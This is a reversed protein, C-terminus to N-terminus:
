KKKRKILVFFTIVTVFVGLPVGISLALLLPDAIIQDLFSRAQVVHTSELSDIRITLSGSQTDVISSSTLTVPFTLSQYPLVADIVKQSPHAQLESSTHIDVPVAYWAYGTNNTITIDYKSGMGLFTTLNPSVSVAVDLTPEAVTASRQITFNKQDVGQQNNFSPPIPKTSSEGQTALTIHNFDLHHFYETYGITDSWTPDVPQWNKTEHNFFEAWVHLPVNSVSLPRLVQSNSLAYGTVQRAAINNARALTIFLDSYEHALSNTPHEYAFAAGTRQPDSARRLYNYDLIQVVAKFAEHPTTYKKRLEQISPHNKEWYQQGKIHELTPGPSVVDARPHLFVDIKGEVLLEQQQQSDLPYTAIWNGDNDREIKEPRPALQSFGVRQYLTDPPLVVQIIGRNGTPNSLLYSMNFTYTQKKGFLATVGHHANDHYELTLTQDDETVNTPTPESIEVAGLYKPVQINIQYTSFQDAYTLSPINIEATQDSLIAIEPHTYQLTFTHQKEKGVVKEPFELGVTTKEETSTVTAPLVTDNYTVTVNQINGSHIEIAYRTVFATSTTNTITFDSRVTTEGAPSIIYTSSLDTAFQSTLDAARLPSREGTAIALVFIIICRIFWKM